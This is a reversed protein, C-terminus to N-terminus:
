AQRHSSPEAMRGAQAVCLAGDIADGEAPVISGRIDEPLWLELRPALGGLLAVRPAGCEILRQVLGGIDVAAKMVIQRGVSDGAEACDMALPAFRAFDTASADDMWAVVEFPDDGFRAMIARTLRTAPIRGDHARLALRIANLGLDAGSGEDSVPFGYGGIRVEREGLVALGVSGTGVIVIGGDRGQHAGLCAITADNMYRVSRFPHPRVVLAELVGKRGVGALGVVADMKSLVDPPLGADAAAALAASEVAALSRDIGLRVAAPEAGGAGLVCGELNTIRARSGTGGGDVGILLRKPEGSSGEGPNMAKTYAKEITRQNLLYSNRLVPVL